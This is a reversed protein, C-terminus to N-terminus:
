QVPSGPPGRRRREDDGTGTPEPPSIGRPDGVDAALRGSYSRVRRSLERAFAEPHRPSLYLPFAGATVLLGQISDTYVTNFRGILPSWMRGRWGWAGFMGSSPALDRLAAYEIRRVQDLRIRVGGLFKSAVLYVDDIRYHTSLYRVLSGLLLFFIVWVAWWALVTTRYLIVALLVLLFLYTGVILYSIQGWAHYRGEVDLASRSATANRSTTPAAGRRRPSSEPAVM